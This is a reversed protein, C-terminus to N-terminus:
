VQCHAEALSMTMQLLCLPTCMTARQSLTYSQLPVALVKGRYLLTTKKRRAVKAEDLHALAELATARSRIKTKRLSM